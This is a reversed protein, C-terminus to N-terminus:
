IKKKFECWFMFSIGTIIGLIIGCSGFLSGITGGGCGGIVICSLVRDQKM